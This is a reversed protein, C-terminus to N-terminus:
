CYSWATSKPGFSCASQLLSPGTTSACTSPIAMFRLLSTSCRLSRAAPFRSLRNSRLGTLEDEMTVLRFKRGGFLPGHMFDLTWGEFPKTARRLVKGRVLKARGRRRRRWIHLNRLRYLRRFRRFSMYQDCELDADREYDNYLRRCGHEAHVHAVETLRQVWQADDQEKRSAQERPSRRKIRIIKCAERQSLGLMQLAKVAEARRSPEM